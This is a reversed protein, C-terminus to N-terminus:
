EQRRITISGLLLAAIGFAAVILLDRVLTGSWANSATIQKMADVSYTIPMVDAFWQLPRAMQDRCCVARM